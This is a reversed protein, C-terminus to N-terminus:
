LPNLTILFFQTGFSNPFFIYYVVVDNESRTHTYYKYVYKTYVYTYVEGVGVGDLRTNRQKVPKEGAYGDGYRRTYVNFFVRPAILPPPDIFTIIIIM